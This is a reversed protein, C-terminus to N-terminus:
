KKTNKPEVISGIALSFDGEQYWLNSGTVKIHKPLFTTTDITVEDFRGPTETYSIKYTLCMSSDCPGVDKREYRVTGSPSAFTYWYAAILDHTLTKDGTNDDTSWYSDDKYDKTYTTQGIHILEYKAQNNELLVLREKGQDRDVAIEQTLGPYKTITATFRLRPTQSLTQFFSCIDKDTTLCSSQIITGTQRKEQTRTSIYYRVGGFSLGCLIFVFFVAIFLRQIRTRKQIAPKRRIKRKAM